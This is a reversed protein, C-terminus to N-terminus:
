FSGQSVNKPGPSIAWLFIIYGQDTGQEGERRLTTILLKNWCVGGAPAILMNVLGWPLLDVSDQALAGLVSSWFWVFVLGVRTERYAM